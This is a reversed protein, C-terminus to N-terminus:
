EHRPRIVDRLIPCSDFSQHCRFVSPGQFDLQEHITLEDDLLDIAPIFHCGLGQLHQTSFDKFEELCEIPMGNRMDRSFVILSGILQCIERIFDRGGFLYLFQRAIRGKSEEKGM